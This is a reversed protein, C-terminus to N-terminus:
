QQVKPALCLRITGLTAVNCQIVLPYDNKFHIRIHQDLNACKSFQVLYKLDFVGQVIKDSTENEEYKIGDATPKIKIEQRINTNHGRFILQNGVSTIEIEESFLFIERCIKQFRASSMIIVNDFKVPQISKDYREIDMLSQYITNTINEDKNFREIGITNTDTKSVFLRLVDSNEMNKIIKFFDELNLGIVLPQDCKYMEFGSVELNLHVLVAHSPDMSLLKIGTASCELNGETLLDRLLEALNKIPITRSTWLHFIYNDCDATNGSAGSPPASTLAATSSSSSGKKASM